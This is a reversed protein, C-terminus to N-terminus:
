RAGGFLIAQASDMVSDMDASYNAAAMEYAKSAYYRADSRSDAQQAM